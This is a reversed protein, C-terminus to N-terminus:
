PETRLLVAGLIAAIGAALFVHGGIFNGIFHYLLTATVLPVLALLLLLAKCIAGPRIAVAAFVLALVISITSDQLWLVKLGNGVFADIDSKAVAASARNFGLTHMWAALALVIASFLLLLRGVVKMIKIM